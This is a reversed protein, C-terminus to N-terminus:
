AEGWPAAFGDEPEQWIPAYVPALHSRLRVPVTWKTAPYRVERQRFWALCVLGLLSGLLLYRIM